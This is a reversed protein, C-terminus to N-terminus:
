LQFDYAELAMGTTSSAVVRALGRRSTPPAQNATTSNSSM